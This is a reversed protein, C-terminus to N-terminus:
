AICIDACQHCPSLIKCGFPFTPTPIHIRDHVPVVDVFALVVMGLGQLGWSTATDQASGERSSCPPYTVVLEVPTNNFVVDALDRLLSM